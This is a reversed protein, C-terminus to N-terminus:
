MSFLQGWGRPQSPKTGAALLGGWLGTAVTDLVPIGLETELNHALVAGWMNTCFVVIADPRGLAVSRISGAITEPTLAAFAFNVREGAHREAVCEYGEQAFTGIIRRQVEDLYPTVLGFRRVDVRRLLADLALVSSTAPIGTRAEIAACLTRDREFGLWGASTGNWCISAVRADALLDAAALIPADDFQGLAHDVLSIETVRFRGFHLSVDPMSSAMRMLTPELVSNSSPTLMGLRTSPIQPFPTASITASM